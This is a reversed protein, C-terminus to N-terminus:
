EENDYTHLRWYVHWTDADNKADYQYAILFRGKQYNMTAVCNNSTDWSVLNAQGEAGSYSIVEDEMNRSMGSKRTYDSISEGTGLYEIGLYNMNLVINKAERLTQREQISQDWIWLTPALVVICILLTLLAINRARKYKNTYVLSEYSQQM